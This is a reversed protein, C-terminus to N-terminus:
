NFVSCVSVAAANTEQICPFENRIKNMVYAAEVTTRRLKKWLFLCSKRQMEGLIIIM